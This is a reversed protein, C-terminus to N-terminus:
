SNGPSFLTVIVRRSLITQDNGIYRTDTATPNFFIYFSLSIILINGSVGIPTRAGTDACALGEEHGGMWKLPFKGACKQMTAKM